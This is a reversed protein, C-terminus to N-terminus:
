RREELEKEGAKRGLSSVVVVKSRRKEFVEM